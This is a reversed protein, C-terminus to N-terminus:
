YFFFLLSFLSCLFFYFFDPNTALGRLCGAPPAVFKWTSTLLSADLQKNFKRTKIAISNQKVDHKTTKKRPKTTIRTQSSNPKRTICISVRTLYRKSLTFDDTLFIACNGRKVRRLRSQYYECSFKVFYYSIFHCFFVKM